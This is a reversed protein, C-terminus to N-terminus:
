RLQDALARRRCSRSRHQWEDANQTLFLAAAFCGAGGLLAAPTVVGLLHAVQPLLLVVFELALGAATPRARHFLGGGSAAPHQLLRWLLLLLVPAAAVASVELAITGAHGSVFAEKQERLTPM